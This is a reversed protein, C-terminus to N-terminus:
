RNALARKDFTERIIRNKMEFLKRKISDDIVMSETLIRVGGLLSQDVTLTLNVHKKLMRILRIEILQLQGPTLPVASIIEVNTAEVNAAEAYTVKVCAAETYTAKVSAAETYAAEANTAEVSHSRRQQLPQENVGGDTAANTVSNIGNTNMFGDVGGDSLYRKSM